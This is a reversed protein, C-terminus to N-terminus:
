KKKIKQLLMQIYDILMLSISCLSAGLVLGMMGGLESCFGLLSMLRYKTWTEVKKSAFYLYLDAKHMADDYSMEEEVLRYSYSSCRAVCSSTDEHVGIPPHTLAAVQGKHTHIYRDLGMVEYFGLTDNTNSAMYKSCIPRRQTEDVWIGPVQCDFRDGYDEKMQQFRINWSHYVNCMNRSYHVSSNCPHVKSSKPLVMKKPKIM